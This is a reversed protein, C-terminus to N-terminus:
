KSRRNQLYHGDLVTVGGPVIAGVVGMILERM